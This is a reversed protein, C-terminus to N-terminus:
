YCKVESIYGQSEGTELLHNIVKKKLYAKSITKRTKNGRSEFLIVSETFKTIDSKVLIKKTLDPTTKKYYNYAEDSLVIINTVEKKNLDFIFDSRVKVGENREKDTLCNNLTITKSYAYSTNFILLGLFVYLFIKKM